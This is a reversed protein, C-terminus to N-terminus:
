KEPEINELLHVDNSITNPSAGNKELKTKFNKKSIKKQQKSSFISFRESEQKEELQKLVQATRSINENSSNIYLDYGENNADDNLIIGLIEKINAFGSKVNQIINSM